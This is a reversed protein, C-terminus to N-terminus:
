RRMSQEQDAMEKKARETVVINWHKRKLLKWLRFQNLLNKQREEERHSLRKLIVHFDYHCMFLFFSSPPPGLDLNYDLNRWEIDHDEIFEKALLPLLWEESGDSGFVGLAGIPGTSNATATDNQIVASNNPQQWGPQQMVIVSMNPGKRPSMTGPLNPGGHTPGGPTTSATSATVLDRYRRSHSTLTTTTTSPTKKKGNGIPSAVTVASRPIEISTEHLIDCGRTSPPTPSTDLVSGDHLIIGREQLPIFSIEGDRYVQISSSAPHGNCNPSRKPPNGRGEHLLGRGGTPDPDVNNVGMPTAIPTQPHFAETIEMFRDNEVNLLHERRLMNLYSRSTLRREQILMKRGMFGIYFEHVEEYDSHLNIFNVIIAVMCCCGLIFSLVKIKRSFSPPQTPTPKKNVAPSKNAGGTTHKNAGRPHEPVEQLNDDSVTLIAIAPTFSSSPNPNNSNNPNNKSNNVSLVKGDRPHTQIRGATEWSSNWIRNTTSTTPTVLTGLLTGEISFDKSGQNELRNQHTVSTPARESTKPATWSDVEPLPAATATAKLNTLLLSPMLIFSILMIAQPQWVQYMRIEQQRKPM